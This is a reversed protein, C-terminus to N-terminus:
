DYLGGIILDIFTANDLGYIYENINNSNIKKIIEKSDFPLGIFSDIYEKIDKKTFFDGFLNINLITNNKIDIFFNFEGCSIKKKFSYSYPIKKDYIWKEDLYKIELQRINKIEDEGLKIKSPSIENEIALIVENQCIKLYNKLNIVRSKVSKIGKSIIKDTSPTITKELNDLNADYLFTGHLITGNNNQYIAVGSFKKNEFLLDNRGSLNIELGQKQLVKKIISLYKNYIEDKNHNSTIFSYMFCGRDAYIAGGGSPRRFIKCGIDLAQSINVETKLLQHRGIIISKDIRWVFFAEEKKKLLYEELALYFSIDNIGLNELDYVKM